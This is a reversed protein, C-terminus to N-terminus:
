GPAITQDEHRAAEENGSDVFRKEDDEDLAAVAEGAHERARAIRDELQSLRDNTDRRVDATDDTM